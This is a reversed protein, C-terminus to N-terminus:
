AIPAPEELLEDEPVAVYHDLVDRMLSLVRRGIAPWPM